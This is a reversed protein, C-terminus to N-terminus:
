QLELHSSSRLYKQAAAPCSSCAMSRPTFLVYIGGPRDAAMAAIWRKEEAVCCPNGDRAAVIITGVSISNMLFHVVCFTSAAQIGPLKRRKRLFPRLLQRGADRDALIGLGSIRPRYVLTIVPYGVGIVQIFVTSGSLNPREMYKKGM